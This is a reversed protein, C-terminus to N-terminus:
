ENDILINGTMEKPIPLNLLKLITPAVDSLKGDKLRINEKTIICPVKSLTHSTIPNHNEDWMKDCNGHDAIIILIGNLSM